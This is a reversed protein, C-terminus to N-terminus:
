WCVKGIDSASNMGSRNDSPTRGLTVTYREDGHFTLKYHKGDDTIVFGMAELEKKMQPTLMKYGKLLTKLQQRDQEPKHNSPNAEIIDKLIDFRRTREGCRTLEDELVQILMDCIENDYLDQEGGYCLVPKNSVSNLKSRLGRSEAQSSELQRTLEKVQNELDKIDSDITEFLEENELEAKARKEQQSQLRTKLLANSVGQWTYLSSIHRTTEKEIIFAVITDEMMREQKGRPFPVKRPAKNPLYLTVGRKQSPDPDALVHAVGKLRSAAWKLDIQNSCDEPRSVYVIPLRNNMNGAVIDAFLIQNEDTKFVPERLIPLGDDEVLYDHNILLTIFHPTTFDRNESMADEAYTRDLQISLKHERENFVFDSDWIIGTAAHKEHRVSIIDEDQYEEMSLWLDDTGFRLVREANWVEKNTDNLTVDDVINEERPNTNNWEVVLELFKDKTLEDRVPLITSFLLM